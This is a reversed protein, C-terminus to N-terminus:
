SQAFEIVLSIAVYSLFIIAALIFSIQAVDFVYHSAETVGLFASVPLCAIGILALVAAIWPALSSM